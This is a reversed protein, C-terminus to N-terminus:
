MPPTGCELCGPCMFSSRFTHVQAVCVEHKTGARSAAESQRDPEGPCDGSLCFTLMKTKTSFRIVPHFEDASFTLQDLNKAMDRPLILKKRCENIYARLYEQKAPVPQVLGFTEKGVKYEVPPLIQASLEPNREAWRPPEPSGMYRFCVKRQPRGLEHDM